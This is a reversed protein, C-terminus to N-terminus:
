RLGRSERERNTEAIRQGVMQDIRDLLQAGSMTTRAARIMQQAQGWSTSPGYSGRDAMGGDILNYTGTVYEAEDSALWCALKGIDEPYGVRGLPISQEMATRQEGEGILGSALPTDIVGPGI